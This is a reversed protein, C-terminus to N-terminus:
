CWMDASDILGHNSAPPLISATTYSCFHFILSLMVVGVPVGASRLIHEDRGLSIEMVVWGLSVGLLVGLGFRYDIDWIIITKFFLSFMMVGVLLGANYKIHGDRELSIQMVVLALCGGLLMGLGFRCEIDLITIAKFILALLGIFGLIGASYKFYADMGLLIEMIVWVSCVGLLMGLVFYCKIDRIIVMKSEESPDGSLPYLLLKHFSRYIGFTIIVSTFCSWVVSLLTVMGPNADCSLTALTLASSVDFFALMLGLLFSCAKVNALVPSGVVVLSLDEEAEEHQHVKTSKGGSKELLLPEQLCQLSPDMPIAVCLKQKRAFMSISVQM